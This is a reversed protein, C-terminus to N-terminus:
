TLAHLATEWYDRCRTCAHCQLDCELTHAFFDETIDIPHLVSTPGGGIENPLLTRRNLYADCVRVYHAPDQLTVRGALKLEDYLGDYLHLHQPLIWSSTLRMWPYQELTKRCLSRPIRTGAAIDQFHQVRFPCGSLCAENVILRIRGPFASRLASLAHKRRLVRNGPVLVDFVDKLMMAQPPTAIDMVVSASLSFCPLAERVCRALPLSSITADCIGFDGHLRCLADVVAPAVEEIPSSLTVPNILVSLEFPSKALVDDLHQSPQPPRASAFGAESPLPFYIHRIRDGFREHLQSWFSLPQDVYPM